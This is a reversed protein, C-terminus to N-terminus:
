RPRGSTGDRLVLGIQAPEVLEHGSDPSPSSAHYERAESPSISRTNLDSSTRTWAAWRSGIGAGPGRRLWPELAHRDHGHRCPHHERCDGPVPWCRPERDRAPPVSAVAPRADSTGGRSSPQRQRRISLRASDSRESGKRASRAQSPIEDLMQDPLATCSVAKFSASTVGSTTLPRPWPLPSSVFSAGRPGGVPAVGDGQDGRLSARLGRPGGQSNAADSKGTLCRGAAPKPSLDATRARRRDNRSRRCAGTFVVDDHDVPRDRPGVAIDVRHMEHM